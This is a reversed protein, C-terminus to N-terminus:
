PSCPSLSSPQSSASAHLAPGFSVVAPQWFPRPSCSDSSLSVSWSWCPWSWFCSLSSTWASDTDWSGSCRSRGPCPWRRGQLLEWELVREEGDEELMGLSSHLWHSCWGWSTSKSLSLPEERYGQNNCSFGAAQESRLRFVCCLQTHKLHLNHFMQPLLPLKCADLPPSYAVFLFRIEFIIWNIERKVLWRRLLKLTVCNM